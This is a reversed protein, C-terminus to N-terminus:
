TPGVSPLDGGPTHERLQCITGIVQRMIGLLHQRRPPIRRPVPPLHVPLRIQTGGRRRQRATCPGTLMISAYLLRAAKRSRAIKAFTGTGAFAVCQPAYM